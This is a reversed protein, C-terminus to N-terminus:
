LKVTLFAVQLYVAHVHVNYNNLKLHSFLYAENLNAFMNLYVKMAAVPVGNGSFNDLM